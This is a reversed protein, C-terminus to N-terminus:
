EFLDGWGIPDNEKIENKLEKGVVFDYCWPSIGNDPRILEIDDEKIITGKKMRRAAHVSRRMFFLNDREEKTLVKNSEGFAYEIHRIAQVMNKFERPDSSAFHDPGEMSKDLTLHKEIFKAGLSAAMVSIEIGITHDSYGVPFSFKKKLLRLFNMNVQDYSTPYATTCHMMIINKNGLHIIFDVTRKIERFSAMGLSLIISKNSEAVNKILKKNTLDASSIKFKDINLRNFFDISQTDYPTIIFEINKADSYEKLEKFEDFSLELRKLMEYQNKEKSRIQYNAKETKLSVLKEARFSQFKVADAGSNKAVDILKKALKVSGNHNVGAEAIIFVPAYEGLSDSSTSPETM